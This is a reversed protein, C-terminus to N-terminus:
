PKDTEWPPTLAGILPKYQTNAFGLHFLPTQSGSLPPVVWAWDAHVERGQARETAMHEMFKRAITHHDVLTIGMRGYSHLVAYNLEVLARDRWLTAESSMDLGMKEAIAPVMDYAFSDGFNRAGIEASMFWGNFPALDYTVGGMDFGMGTFPSVAHWKLGLEEFWRFKPHRIPVELVADEPLEFLQPPRDEVQIIIPLLDFASRKGDRGGGAWGLALAQETLEVQSPDGLISGDSQRYGAYRVLRLNWVRLGKPAFFSTLCRIRGGNTCYRLHEVLANFIETEDRLHRVDITKMAPWFVRGVCRVSNRWAIKCGYSLEDYTQTYTGTRGIEAEVERLRAPLAGLVNNEYFVQTLFARAEEFASAGSDVKVPAYPFEVPQLPPMKPRQKAEITMASPAVPGGAPTFREVKLREPPVGAAALLDSVAREFATPGCVIFMAEPLDAVLRDVDARSLRGDQSTVRMNFGISAGNAGYARFEDLCVADRVDSVSYDVYIRRGKADKGFTRCMVLGPTVGIGGVVCVISSGDEGAVVDGQPDSIRLLQKADAQFLWSSFTGHQERKVTIERYAREDPHSTLTYSRTVWKGDILGQVVVHQGPLAPKDFTGSWPVL